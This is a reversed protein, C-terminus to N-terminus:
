DSVHAQARLGRVDAEPAPYSPQWAQLLAKMACAATTASYGQWEKSKHSDAYDCGAKIVISSLQDWIGASEMEFAIVEEKLATDDRHIGSKMVSNGSAIMGFFVRPLILAPTGQSANGPQYRHRAIVPGDCGLAKCSMKRSVDCVADGHERWESCIACTASDQHRHQYGSEFLVDKEPGPYQPAAESELMRRLHESLSRELLALSRGGKMGVLFNRIELSPRGLAERPGNKRIFKDSYQRGYDSEIVGESIVVDGMIMEEGEESDPESRPCIGCIGVVLTLKVAPFSSRLSAAAGSAAKPGAEPLRVLVVNHGCIYGLTYYNPDGQAKDFCRHGDWFGDFMSEV